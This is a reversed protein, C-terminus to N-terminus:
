EALLSQLHLNLEAADRAIWEAGQERLRRAHDGFIHSAGLFGIVSLGAARAATVGAVSDEVVVTHRPELGLRELALLYVDPHPKPKGAEEASFIRGEVKDSLGALALSNAVHGLGSNSVISVPLPLENILEGMGAIAKLEDRFAIHHEVKIRAYFDDPQATGLEGFVAALIDTELMGAFRTSHTEEDSHYGFPALMRLAIRSALIESDVIVGDCDFIFHRLSLPM